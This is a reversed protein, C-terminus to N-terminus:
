KQNASKYKIRTIHCIHPNLDWFFQTNTAVYITQEPWEEVYVDHRCDPNLNSGALLGLLVFCTISDRIYM